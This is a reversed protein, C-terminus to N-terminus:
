LLLNLTKSKDCAQMEHSICRVNVDMVTKNLGTKAVRRLPAELATYSARASVSKSGTLYCLFPLLHVMHTLPLSISVWPHAISHALGRAGCGM